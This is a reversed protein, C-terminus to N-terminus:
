DTSLGLTVALPPGMIQVGYEQNLWEATAEDAGAMVQEVYRDFGLVGDVVFFSDKQVAHTHLPVWFAYDVDLVFFDLRGHNNLGSAKSPGSQEARMVLGDM